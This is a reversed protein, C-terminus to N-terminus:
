KGKLKAAFLEKDTMFEINYRSRLGFKNRLWDADNYTNFTFANTLPGRIQGVRAPGLYLDAAQDAVKLVHPM